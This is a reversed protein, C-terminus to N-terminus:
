FLGHIGASLYCSFCVVALSFIYLYLTHLSTNNFLTHFFLLYIFNKYIDYMYILLYTYIYIDKLLPLISKYHLSILLCLIYINAYFLRVAKHLRYVLTVLFDDITWFFHYLAFLFSLHSPFPSFSLLSPLLSAAMSPVLLAFSLHFKIQRAIEAKWAARKGFFFFFVCRVLNLTRSFSLASWKYEPQCSPQAIMIWFAASLNGCSFAALCSLSGCFFDRTPPTSWM